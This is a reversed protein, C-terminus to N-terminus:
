FSDIMDLRAATERAWTATMGKSDEARVGRKRAKIAHAVTL